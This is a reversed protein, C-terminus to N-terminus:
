TTSLSSMKPSTWTADFEITWTAAIATSSTTSNLCVSQRSETLASLNLKQYRRNQLRPVNIRTFIPKINKENIQNANEKLLRRSQTSRVGANAFRWKSVSSFFLVYLPKTVFKQLNARAYTFGCGDIVFNAINLAATVSIAAIDGLVGNASDKATIQLQGTFFTYCIKSILCFKNYIKM